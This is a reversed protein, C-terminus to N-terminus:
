AGKDSAKSGLKLFVGYFVKTYKKVNKIYFLNWLKNNLRM